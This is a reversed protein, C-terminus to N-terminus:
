HNWCKYSNQNYIARGALTVIVSNSIPSYHFDGFAIIDNANEGRLLRIKHHNQSQNQWLITGTYLDSAARLEYLTSQTEVGPFYFLLSPQREHGGGWVARYCYLWWPSGSSQTFGQVQKFHAKSKAVRQVQEFNAVSRQRLESVQTQNMRGHGLRTTDFSIQGWAGAGWMLMLFFVFFYRM